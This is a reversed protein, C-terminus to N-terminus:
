DAVVMVGSMRDHGDGCFIDCLYTFRGKRDPTFNLELSKGPVLDRRVNFDPLNFGHPFDAATLALTLAHGKDRYTRLQRPM